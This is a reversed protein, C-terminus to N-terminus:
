SFSFLPSLKRSSFNQILPLIYQRWLFISHLLHLSFVALSQTSFSSLRSRNLKLNEGACNDWNTLGLFVLSAIKLSSTREKRLFDENVLISGSHPLLRMTSSAM